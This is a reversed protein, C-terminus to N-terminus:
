PTSLILTYEGTDGPFSTVEIYHVGNESPTYAFDYPGIAIQQLDSGLLRASFLNLGPGDPDLSVEYLTGAQAEFVFWDSDSEVEM